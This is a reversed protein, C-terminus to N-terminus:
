PKPEPAAAAFEIGRTEVGDMNLAVTVQVYHDDRPSQPTPPDIPKSNVIRWVPAGDFRQRKMTEVVRSLEKEHPSRLVFRCRITRCQTASVVVRPQESADAFAEKRALVVAKNVVTQHRRGWKGKIPEGDFPEVGWRKWSQDMQAQNREAFRRKRGKKGQPRPAVIVKEDPVNVYFHTGVSGLVLLPALLARAIRLAKTNPVANPKADAEVEAEIGADVNPSSEKSSESM